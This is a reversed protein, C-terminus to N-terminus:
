KSFLALLPVLNKTRECYADVLRQLWATGKSAVNAPLEQIFEVYDASM